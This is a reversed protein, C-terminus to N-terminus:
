PRTVERAACGRGASGACRGSGARSPCPLPRRRGQGPSHPPEGLSLRPPALSSGPGWPSPSDEPPRQSPPRSSRRLGPLATSAPAGRPAKPRGRKCGCPLSARARAAAAAAEAANWGGRGGRTIRKRKPGGRQTKPTGALHGRAVCLDRSPQATERPAVTNVAQWLGTPPPPMKLSGRLSRRATHALLDTGM